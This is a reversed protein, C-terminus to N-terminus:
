AAAARVRTEALGESFSPMEPIPGVLEEDTLGRDWNWSNGRGIVIEDPLGFPRAPLKPIEVRSGVKRKAWYGREPVPVSARRCAKALAVDSVGFRPALVRMAESWVATRLEERSLRHIRKEPM